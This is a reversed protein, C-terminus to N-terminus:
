EDCEKRKEGGSQGKVLSRSKVITEFAKLQDVFSQIPNICFRKTQILTYANEYTYGQSILYGIVVAPARSIGCLCHVLLVSDPNSLVGVIVPILEELKPILQELHSNSVIFTSHAISPPLAKEKMKPDTLSLVHSIRNSALIDPDTKFSSIYIRPFVEQM